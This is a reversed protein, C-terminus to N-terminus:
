KTMGGSTAHGHNWRVHRGWHGGGGYSRKRKNHPNEPETGFPTIVEQAEGKGKKKEVLTPNRPTSPPDAMTLSQVQRDSVRADDLAKPDTISVWWTEKSRSDPEQDIEFVLGTREKKEGRLALSRLASVDESERLFSAALELCEKRAAENALLSGSIGVELRAPKDPDGYLVFQYNDSAHIVYPVNKLDGSDMIPAPLLRLEAGWPRAALAHFCTVWDAIRPGAAAGAPAPREISEVDFSNITVSAYKLLVVMGDENQKLVVGELTGGNKLHITDAWGLPAGAAFAVLFAALTRM